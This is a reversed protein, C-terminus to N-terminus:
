ITLDVRVSQHLSSGHQLPGHPLSSFAGELWCPWCPVSARLGLTDLFPMWDELFLWTFSSPFPDNRRWTKEAGASVKFVQSTGSGCFSIILTTIKFWETQPYHTWCCYSVLIRFDCSLDPCVSGDYKETGPLISDHVNVSVPQGTDPGRERHQFNRLPQTDAVGKGNPCCTRVKEHWALCLFHVLYTLYMLSSVAQRPGSGCARAVGPGGQISPRRLKADRYAPFTQERAAGPMFICGLSPWFPM